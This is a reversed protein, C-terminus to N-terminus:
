AVAPTKQASKEAQERMKKRERYRRLKERNKM